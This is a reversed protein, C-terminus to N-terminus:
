SCTPVLQDILPVCAAPDGGCCDAVLFGVLSRLAAMDAAYYIFRSQRRAAILGGRELSALHASLTSPALAMRQAIDGAALGEPGTRILLRLIELRGAHALADFM